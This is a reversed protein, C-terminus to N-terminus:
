LLNSVKGQAFAEQVDGGVGALSDQPPNTHAQPSAAGVSRVTSPSPQSPFAHTSGAAQAQYIFEYPNNCM